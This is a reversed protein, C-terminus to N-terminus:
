RDSDREDETLGADPIEAPRVATGCWACFRDGSGFVAGCKSCAGGIGAERLERVAVPEGLARELARLERDTDAAGALKAQVLDPRQRGFRHLELMFGGIDRLQVERLRRLYRARRRIRGRALFTDPQADSAEFTPDSTFAPADLATPHPDTEPVAGAEPAPAIVSTAPEPHAMPPAPAPTTPEDLETPPEPAAPEPAPTTPEELETPPAPAAPEPAPTAPAAVQVTPAAGNMAPAAGNQPPPGLRRSASARRRRAISELLGSM